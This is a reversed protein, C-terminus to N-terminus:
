IVRGVIAICPYWYRKGNELWEKRMKEARRKSQKFDVSHVALFDPALEKEVQKMPVKFKKLFKKDADEVEGYPCVFVLAMRKKGFKARPALERCDDEARELAGEISKKISEENYKYERDRGKIIIKPWTQKAEVDYSWRKSLQIYLDARGPGKRRKRKLTPYEQLPHGNLDYAALSLIGINTRESHWYPLDDKKYYNEYSKLIEHWKKIWKRFPQGTRTSIYLRAPM